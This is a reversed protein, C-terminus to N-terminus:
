GIENTSSKTLFNVFIELVEADLLDKYGNELIEKAYETNRLLHDHM